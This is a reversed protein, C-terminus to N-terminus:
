KSSFFAYGGIALLLVFLLFGIGLVAMVIAFTSRKKKPAPPPPPTSPTM